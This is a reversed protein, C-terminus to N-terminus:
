VLALDMQVYVVRDFKDDSTIKLSKCFDRMVWTIKFNYNCQNMIKLTGLQLNELMM